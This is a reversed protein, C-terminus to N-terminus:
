FVTKSVFYWFGSLSKSFTFGKTLFRYMQQPRFYFEIYAKKAMKRVDEPKLGPMEFVPENRQFGPHFVAPDYLLKGEKKVIEHLETGPFPTCIFFQVMEVKLKKVFDISKRMTEKTDFPLGLIVFLNIKM